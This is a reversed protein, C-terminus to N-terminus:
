RALHEFSKAEVLQIELNKLKGKLAYYQKEVQVTQIKAQCAKIQTAIQFSTKQKSIAKKQSM